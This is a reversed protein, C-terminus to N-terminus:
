QAVLELVRQALQVLDAEAEVSNDAIDRVADFADDGQLAESESVLAVATSRAVEPAKPDRMLRTLEDQLAPYDAIAGPRSLLFVAFHDWEKPSPSGTVFHAVLSDLITPHIDTRSDIATIVWSLDDEEEILALMGQRAAENRRTLSAISAITTLGRMQIAPDRRIQSLLETVIKEDL